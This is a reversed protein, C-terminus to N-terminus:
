KRAPCLGTDAGNCLLMQKKQYGIGARGYAEKVLRQGRVLLRVPTEVNRKGFHAPNPAQERGPFTDTM